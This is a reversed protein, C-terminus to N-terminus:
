TTNYPLGQLKDEQNVTYSSLASLTYTELIDSQPYNIANIVYM